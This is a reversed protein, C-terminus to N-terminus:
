YPYCPYYCPRPPMYVVRRECMGYPYSHIVTTCQPYCPYCPVFVPPPPAVMMPRCCMGAVDFLFSFSVNAAKLPMSGCLAVLSIILLFKKM